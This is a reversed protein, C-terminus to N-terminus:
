QTSRDVPKGCAQLGHALEPLAGSHAVKGASKGVGHRNELVGGRGAEAALRLKELKPPQSTPRATEREVLTELPLSADYRPADVQTHPSIAGSHFRTLRAAEGQWRALIPSGNDEGQFEGFQWQRALLWLPDYVKAQLSTNMGANRSRPELRIWSTISPM